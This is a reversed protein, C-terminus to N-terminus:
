IVCVCHNNGLQQIHVLHLSRHSNTNRPLHAVDMQNRTAHKKIMKYMCVCLDSIIMNTKIACLRINQNVKVVTSIVAKTINVGVSNKVWYTNITSFIVPVKNNVTGLSIDLYTKIAIITMMLMVYYVVQKNM